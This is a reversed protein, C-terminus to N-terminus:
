ADGHTGQGSLEEDQAFVDEHMAVIQEGFPQEDDDVQFLGWSVDRLEPEDFNPDQMLYCLHFIMSGQVSRVIDLLDADSVGKQRCRELAFGLRASQHDTPAAQAHAIQEDIWSANGPRVAYKWAQRVVLSALLESPGSEITAIAASMPDPYWMSAFLDALADPDKPIPM